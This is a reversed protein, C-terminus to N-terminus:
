SARRGPSLRSCPLPSSGPRRSTVIVDNGPRTGGAHRVGCTSRGPAAEQGGNGQRLVM